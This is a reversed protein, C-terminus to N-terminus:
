TGPKLKNWACVYLNGSGELLCVLYWRMFSSSSLKWKFTGVFVLTESESKYLTIFLALHFYQEFTLVAKYRIIFLVVHFYQEITDM